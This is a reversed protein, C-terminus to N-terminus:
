KDYFTLKEVVSDKNVGYVASAYPVNTLEFDSFSKNQKVERTTKQLVVVVTRQRPDLMDVSMEKIKYKSGMLAENLKKATIKAGTASSGEDNVHTGVFCFFFIGDGKLVRLAERIYSAIVDFSTIHQFVGMSFVYELSNSEFSDLNVGNNLCYEINEIGACYKNEAIELLMKSVDVGIVKKFMGSLPKLFRGTGCGIELVASNELKYKGYQKFRKVMTSVFRVGAGSVDDYNLCDGGMLKQWTQPQEWLEKMDSVKELTNKNM